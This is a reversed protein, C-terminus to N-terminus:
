MPAPSGLPRACSWWARRRTLARDVDPLRSYGVWFDTIAQEENKHTILVSEVADEWARTWRYGTGILLLGTAYRLTKFGM